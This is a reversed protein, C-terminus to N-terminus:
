GLPAVAGKEPRRHTRLLEGLHAGLEGAVVPAYGSLRRAAEAHDFRDWAAFAASLDRARNLRARLQNSRPAVICALGAAAEDYAYREWAAVFPAMARKLRVGEVEALAVQQTGDRVKVLDVRSGTVLQLEVGSELAATVLASSMTKTGGTYDAIVHADPFRSRMGQLATHIAAFAADLDDASVPLVEFQGQLLGVQAPINPLTPKADDPRAKIINGTGLVQEGSGPRGTAPDKGSCVFVVHDPRGNRLAAVIPEPSGGVTCVLVNRVPM